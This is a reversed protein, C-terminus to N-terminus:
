LGLKDCEKLLNTYILIQKEAEEKEQIAANLFNELEVRNYEIKQEILKTIKLYNGEKKYTDTM